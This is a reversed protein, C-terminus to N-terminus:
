YGTNQELNPNTALTNSPIPFVNRYSPVSVGNAQNGKFPWLYSNTTFYNYRVLDTRRQGEWYLERSREDLVFDLTLDSSNINGSSSGYARERLENIRSVATSM